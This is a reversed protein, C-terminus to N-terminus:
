ALEVLDRDLGGDAAAHDRALRDLRHALVDCGLAVAAVDRALALQELLLLFALLSHLLDAPDLDGLLRKERHELASPGPSMATFSVSVGGSAVAGLTPATALGRRLDRTRSYPSAMTTATSRARTMRAKTTCANVIGEPEM